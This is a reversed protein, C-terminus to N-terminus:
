SPWASREALSMPPNGQFCSAFYVDLNASKRFGPFGYGPFGLGGAPVNVDNESEEAQKRVERRHRLDTQGRRVAEWRSKSMIQGHCTTGREEIARFTWPFRWRIFPCFTTMTNRCKTAKVREPSLEMASSPHLDWLEGVQM